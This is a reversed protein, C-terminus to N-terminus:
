RGDSFALVSVLLVQIIVETFTKPRSALFWAYPSNQKIENM